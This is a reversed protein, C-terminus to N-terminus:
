IKLVWGLSLRNRAFDSRVDSALDVFQWSAELLNNRNLEYTTRASIQSLDEDGDAVPTDSVAEEGDYESLTYAATLYGTIKATFDQALSAFVRTRERSAYPNVDAEYQSYALGATLRTAPTPLFTL